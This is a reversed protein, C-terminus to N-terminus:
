EARRRWGGVGLIGGDGRRNSGDLGWKKLPLCGEESEWGAEWMEIGAWAIMAANDTCLHAPPVSLRVDPYGRADLYCRLIFRLFKNAAVGGSLVLTKNDRGTRDLAMIVRGALHEFAIRMAERALARREDLGMSESRRLLPSGHSRGTEVIRGATSQFGSFSFETVQHKDELEKQAFPPTFSWGWETTRQRLEEKRTRPPAYHYEVQRDDQSPFAFSELLKGYSVDSAQSLLDSPLVTRAIQDICNGISVDSSSALVTHSTVSKSQLLLTHGGSALLTLFPFRPSHNNSSASNRADESEVLASVLRPTLAHAQMHHVGIFPVSFGIALGKGLDLGASLSSRMGPGRTACVFTPKEYHCIEDGDVVPFTKRSNSSDSCRPLLQLARRVLGPLHAQHSELSGLPHIGRYQANNATVTEHFRLKARAVNDDKEVVAVSTDDSSLSTLSKIWTNGACHTHCVM